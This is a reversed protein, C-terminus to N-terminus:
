VFPLFADGRERTGSDGLGGTEWDERGGTGSDGFGWTGQGRTGTGSKSVAAIANITPQSSVEIKTM